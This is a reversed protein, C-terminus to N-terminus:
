FIIYDSFNIVIDFEHLELTGWLRPVFSRIMLHVGSPYLTGWLRTAKGDEILSMVSDTSHDGLPSGPGRPSGKQLHPGRKTGKRQFLGRKLFIQDICEHISDIRGM